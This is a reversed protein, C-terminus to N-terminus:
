SRRITVWGAGFCSNCSDRNGACSCKEWDDRGILGRYVGKCRGTKIGRFHCKENIFSAEFAPRGCKTCKAIPKPKYNNEFDEIM